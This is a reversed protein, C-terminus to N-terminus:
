GRAQVGIGAHRQAVRGHAGRVRQGQQGQLRAAVGASPAVVGPRDPQIAQANICAGGRGPQGARRQARSPQVRRVLAAEAIDGDDAARRAHHAGGPQRCPCRQGGARSPYIDAQQVLIGRAPVGLPGFQHHPRTPPARCRRRQGGGRDDTATTTAIAHAFHQRGQECVGAAQHEIGVRQVHHGAVRREGGPQLPAAAPAQGRQQRRVRQFRRSPQADGGGFDLQVSQRGRLSERRVAGGSHQELTGARDDRRRPLHGADVRRAACRQGRRARTVHQRAPSGPEPCLLGVPGRHLHGRGCGPQMTLGRGHRGRSRPLCGSHQQGVVQYPGHRCQHVGCLGPTCRWSQLRPTEAGPERSPRRVSPQRNAHGGRRMPGRSARRAACPRDQCCSRCERVAALEETASAGRTKDGRPAPRDLEVDRVMRFDIKRGDLDVRSVQVRVRTGVVYRIGTREGRLEQRLEDFRYYEGGLETIHVMGEVYLADLTVFLGFGAVSSVTGSFEEGLHERM